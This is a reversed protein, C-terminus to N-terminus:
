PIDETVASLDDTFTSSSVSMAGDDHVEHSRRNKKKKSRLSREPTGKIQGALGFCDNNQLEPSPPAPPDPTTIAPPDPTTVAPPPPTTITSPPPSELQPEPPPPTPLCELMDERFEPPVISINENRPHSIVEYGFEHDKTSSGPSGM